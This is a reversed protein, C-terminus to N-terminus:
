GAGTSAKAQPEDEDQKAGVIIVGATAGFVLLGLGFLTWALKM